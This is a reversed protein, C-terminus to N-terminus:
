NHGNHDEEVLEDLIDYAEGQVRKTFRPKRGYRAMYGAQLEAEAAEPDDDEIFRFYAAQGRFKPDRLKRPIREALNESSGIDVTQKFRDAIEYVGPEDPVNALNRGTIGTWKRPIGM